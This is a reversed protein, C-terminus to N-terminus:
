EAKDVKQKDKKNQQLRKIRSKIKSFLKLNVLIAISIALVQYAAGLLFIFKINEVQMLSVYISVCILWGFISLSVPEVVNYLVRIYIFISLFSLPTIYLYMLWKNFTLVNATGLIYIVVSGVAFMIANALLLMAIRFITKRRKELFKHKEDVVDEHLLDEKLLDDITIGYLKAIEKLTFVSPTTDGNEWKSINKNSYNLKKALELQSLGASKRYKVLNAAIIEKDEM